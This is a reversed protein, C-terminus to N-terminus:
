RRTELPRSMELRVTELTRWFTQSVIYIFYPMRERCFAMFRCFVAQDHQMAKLLLPLSRFEKEFAQRVNMKQLLSTTLAIYLRRHLLSLNPVSACLDPYATNWLRVFCEEAYRNFFEGNDQFVNSEIQSELLITHISHTVELAMQQGPQELHSFFGRMAQFFREHSAIFNKGPSGSTHVKLQERAVPTARNTLGTLMLDYFRPKALILPFSCGEDLLHTHLMKEFWRENKELLFRMEENILAHKLHDMNATRRARFFM